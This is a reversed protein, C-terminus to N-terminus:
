KLLMLAQLEEDTMDQIEKPTTNINLTKNDVEHKDTYGFNNKAMFVAFQPNYTGQMANEILIAEQIQKARRYADSFEPHKLAWRKEKETEEPDIPFTATAWEILTDKHIWITHCFRELTPFTNAILEHKESKLGWVREWEKNPKDKDDPKYYTKDIVVEHSTTEMFSLLMEAFREEYKTPRWAPM